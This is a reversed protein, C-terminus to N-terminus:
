QRTTLPSSSSSLLPSITILKEITEAVCVSDSPLMLCRFCTGSRFIGEKIGVAVAKPKQKELAEAPQLCPQESKAVGCGDWYARQMCCDM